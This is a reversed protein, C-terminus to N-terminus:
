KGTKQAKRLFIFHGLFECYINIGEIARNYQVVRINRMQNICMGRPQYQRKVLFRKAMLVPLLLVIIRICTKREDILIHVITGQALVKPQIGMVIKVKKLSVYLKPDTLSHGIIGIRIVLVPVKPVICVTRM